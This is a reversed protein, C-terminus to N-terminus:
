QGKLIVRMASELRSRVEEAHEADRYPHRPWFFGKMGDGRRRPIIHIHLHPVSQSIKNNIALFSGDAGLGLEVARSVQQAVTFLPQLLEPPVDPLTDFHTKPCILLHGHFLPGHDLFVVVNDDEWVKPAQIEGAVIKCFICGSGM